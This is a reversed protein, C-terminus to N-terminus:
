KSKERTFWWCLLSAITVMTVGQWFQVTLEIDLIWASFFTSLVPTFYSFTALLVMNGGIIGINWLAYGSGMVIGALLLDIMVGGTFVLSGEDSFLYKIWLSLATAIFFWTIANKGNALKKTVNCYAAWIFAGVFALTYSVPNTAANALLQSISLGGDGSLTWAVGFFSLAIAPYLIKNVPKRSTVVAFLVTLSPWLYNIISMEVAQTRSHAMGLALSLCMEYSVFMGGGILLYKPSFLTLRPAGIVLVLFISSVSYIMAAGGIPGLQETVNRILGVILSWLLIASCGAITYKYSTNM